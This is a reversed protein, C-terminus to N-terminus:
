FGIEVFPFREMKEILKAPAVKFSKAPMSVELNYEENSAIKFTLDCKGKSQKLIEHMAHTFGQTIHELDLKLTMKHCFRDLVDELLVFTHIKLECPKKEEDGWKREQVLARIYVFIGETFFGKYKLYDESFLTLQYSSEYDELLMQGFPKGTKTMKHAASTVIGAFRVERDKYAELNTALDQLNVNCFHKMETAYADLPHGSIYFGIMEKEGKLMDLKSWPEINPFDPTMFETEGADGFLSVQSSNKDDNYKNAFRILKELFAPDEEKEKYFLQARHMDSCFDFAGAKALAELNRRNVTRLNIRKIFDIFDKFNGNENREKIIDESAGVGVNKIAALGFRIEGKKNVMFDLDSENVDPGLVALKLRRCEELFFTIKKIDSLNHTLVAAMYEAPYHAKLYATQYAVLSYCTSHSKNFAYEAFSEWDGWIKECIKADHGKVAAGEIFKPKMKDLVDRQKKGMAKRLTDAEGGTFGALKQSLLMVQEQYVTIGYTDQLYEEMDPLDYAITEKGHKRNIFNPIYEMPGPRYLANMAILDEFRNPKLNKLHAQMGESEFQFTGVTAGNQYLEYTKEDDLPLKDIDIHVKHRKYINDCASKIISLTKLGLFDMKLMGVSEILKGEFQTVMMESDKQAALPVYKSLDDPGIVVACAHTGTNRVSGELTQAFQLVKKELETGKDRKAAFEPVEKFAKDLSIGPTEPVMKALFDSDALPLKLVRAVDRISSKAAMTGFTVVQAVHDDGYKDIVYKLVRERGDDDFDVDVDPMSIREPNLFREFLLDYKIPDINTIGTCYAVVSGAASGRGPGVVVGLNHKAENIFDQVILFYGPFGMREITDLEFKLRAQIKETLEGYREEAGKKTLYRLYEMEDTFGEPLPFTPLLIDRQLKFNEVKDVIEQTNELAEPCEPFLAAMDDPSKIYEEGSYHMGEKDDFDKGTNLCILIHHAEYDAKNIFHTDNTAILKVGHKQSLKILEQNVFQQEELGHNQLELYFDDGFIDRYEQLAKEAGAPNRALINQSIEGGLCASSAIVGENYQRLLEKDIRPTYYFHEKKFGLSCLKVINEYGTKNKALLILHYGSRDEKGKKELRNDAVYMECGLIPKIGQKQAENFFELVGYMAGHDTIALSDMGLEKVRKILEKINAAGDLISYQTHVHLHTFAPM